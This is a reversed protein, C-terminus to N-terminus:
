RMRPWQSAAAHGQRLGEHRRDMTKAVTTTRDMGSSMGGAAIVGDPEPLPVDAMIRKRPSIEGKTLPLKAETM